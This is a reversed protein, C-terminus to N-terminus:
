DEIERCIRERRMWSKRKAVEGEKQGNEEGQFMYWAGGEGCTQRAQIGLHWSSQLLRVSM